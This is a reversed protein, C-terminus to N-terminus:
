QPVRIFTTHWHAQFWPQDERRGDVKASVRIRDADIQCDLLTDEDVAFTEGSVNPGARYEDIHLFARMRAFSRGDTAVIEVRGKSYKIKASAVVDTEGFTLQYPGGGVQKYCLRYTKPTWYGVKRGGPERQISDVEEVTGQWCGRFETPLMPQPAVMPVAIPPPAAPTPLATWLPQAPEQPVQQPIQMEPNSPPTLPATTARPVPAVRAGNQSAPPEVQLIEQGFAAATSILIVTACVFPLHRCIL